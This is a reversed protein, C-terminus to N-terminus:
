RGAGRVAPGLPQADGDQEVVQVEEATTEFGPQAIGKVCTAAVLTVM